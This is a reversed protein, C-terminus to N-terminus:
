KGMKKKNRPDSFFFVLINTKRSLTTNALSIIMNLFKNNLNVNVGATQHIM